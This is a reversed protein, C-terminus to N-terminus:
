NKLNSNTLKGPSKLDVRVVNAVYNWKKIPTIQLNDVSSNREQSLQVENLFRDVIM